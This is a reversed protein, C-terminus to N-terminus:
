GTAVLCLWGYCRLEFPLDAGLLVTTGRSHLTQDPSRTLLQVNLHGCLRGQTKVFVRISSPGLPAQHGVAARERGNGEGAVPGGKGALHM